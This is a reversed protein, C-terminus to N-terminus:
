YKNLKKNAEIGYKILACNHITSKAAGFTYWLLRTLKMRDNISQSDVSDNFVTIFSQYKTLTEQFCM